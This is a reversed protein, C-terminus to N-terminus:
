SPGEKQEPTETKEFAATQRTMRSGSKKRGEDLPTQFPPTSDFEFRVPDAKVPFDRIRL